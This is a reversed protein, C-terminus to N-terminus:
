RPRGQLVLKTSRVVRRTYTEDRTRLYSRDPFALAAAYAARDRLSPLRWFTAAAQAAYRANGPEYSKLCWQDARSGRQQLAWAAIPGTPTLGFLHAVQEVARHAVLELRFRTLTAIATTADIDCGLLQAVDRVSAYRPEPDGLVAHACAHALALDPALCAVRTAGIEVFDPPVAFLEEAAFLVGYPGPTLARHVDLELGDPQVVTVAKVFRRDFSRRPAAFRRRFGLQELAAVAADIDAGQVLLDGDGFSRLAPDPYFRRAVSPGKVVRSAIGRQALLSVAAVIMREIRLDLALAREHVEFLADEDAPDLELAGECVARVAHGALRQQEIAALLDPFQARNVSGVGGAGQLGYRAIRSLTTTM